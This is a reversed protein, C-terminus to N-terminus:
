DRKFARALRTGIRHANAMLALTHSQAPLTPLAAGDAVHVGPLGAIAGDADTEGPGPRARMPLTGAYHVDAGLTGRRFSGPLLRAGSRRFAAGLRGRVAEAYSAVEEAEGGVVAVQGGARLEMRSRAFRSPLFCNAVICSPLLARFVATGAAISLPAHRLFESVPLGHTSFTYGCVEHPESGELTFALQATGPGPVAAVGTYRPLWLVFAAMPLHLLAVSGLQPLSRLAIATTAVTGAALVVRRATIADDRGDRRRVHARWGDGARELREVIHGPLHRAGDRRVLSAVDPRSSYMAHRPCGWLCLGRADCGRRDASADEALVALRARGLRFGQAALAACRRGYGALLADHLRDLAITGRALGDVGFYPALEDDCAGSIGIRAAVTRYAADLEAVDIPADGWAQPPLRSVGCGWANSLGGVALSGVLAFREAAIGNAAAYDRFAYALTPARFKPSSAAQERLAHADEGLLWRAQGADHRRLALYEGDPVDLAPQEGGDVIWTRLGAEVLPFAASVGAPGSGVVLVDADHTM